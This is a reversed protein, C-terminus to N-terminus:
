QCEGESAVRMGASEACEANTYTQGDCGCVPRLVPSCPGGPDRCGGPGECGAGICSGYYCDANTYCGRYSESSEPQDCLAPRDPDFCEGTRACCVDGPPCQADHGCYTITVVSGGAGGGGLTQNEGCGGNMTAVRVGAACADQGGVYTVGDCGCLTCPSGLSDTACSGCNNRSTCYGLGGCGHNIGACMEDAACDANSVCSTTGNPGSTNDPVRCAEPHTAPNFCQFTLLCCAEDGACVAGGCLSIKNDPGFAAGGGDGGTV